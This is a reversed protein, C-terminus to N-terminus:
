VQLISLSLPSIIIQSLYGNSALTNKNGDAIVVVWDKEISITNVVTALNATAGLIITLTSLLLFIYLSVDGCIGLDLGFLFALCVACACVLTNQVLLSALVVPLLSLSHIRHTTITGVESALTAISSIM